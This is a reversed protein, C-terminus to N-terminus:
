WRTWWAKSKVNQPLKKQMIKINQQTTSVAGRQFRCKKPSSWVLHLLTSPEQITTNEKTLPPRKHPDAFSFASKGHPQNKWQRESKTFNSSWAQKKLRRLSTCCSVVHTARISDQTPLRFELRFPLACWGSDHKWCRAARSFFNLRVQSCSKQQLCPHCFDVLRQTGFHQCHHPLHCFGFVFVPSQSSRCALRSCM